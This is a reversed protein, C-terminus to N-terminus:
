CYYVIKLHVMMKWFEKLLFMKQRYWIDMPGPSIHILIYKIWVLHANTNAM